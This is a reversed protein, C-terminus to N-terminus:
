MPKNFYAAKERFNHIDTETLPKQDAMTVQGDLDRALTEACALMREFAAVTDSVLALQMFLIVGPTRMSSIKEPEFHGPQLMNSMSFTTKNDADYAHYIKMDGFKLQQHNIVKLLDTGGFLATHARIHIIILDDQYDSASEASDSDAAPLPKVVEPETEPPKAKKQSKLVSGTAMVDPLVDDVSAAVRAVLEQDLEFDNIESALFADDTRIRQVDIIEEDTTLEIIDDEALPEPEDFPPTKDKDKSRGLLYILVIVFLGAGLIIWRLNEM